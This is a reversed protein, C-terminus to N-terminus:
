LGRPRYAIVVKPKTYPAPPSEGTFYLLAGATPANYRGDVDLEALRQFEAVQLRDYKRGNKILDSLVKKALEAAADMKAVPPTPGHDPIPAPTLLVLPKQEEDVTKASPILIPPKKADRQASIAALREELNLRQVEPPGAFSTSQGAALKALTANIMEESKAELKKEVVKGVKVGAGKLKNAVQAGKKKAIQKVKQKLNAPKAAQAQIAQARASVPTAPKAPQTPVQFLPKSEEKKKKWLLYGGVAGVALIPVLPLM